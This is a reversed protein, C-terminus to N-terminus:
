RRLDALGVPRGPLWTAVSPAAPPVVAVPCGVHRALTIAPSPAVGNLLAGRAPRGLVLLRAHAATAALLEACRDNVVRQETDVDPYALRAASLQLRLDDRVHEDAADWREMRGPLLAGLDVLPDNWTRVALLGAHRRQAEAFAFDIVKPETEPGVGVVVPVPDRAHRLLQASSRPSPAQASPVIVVPCWASMVLEDVHQAPGAVVLLDADASAVLATHLVSGGLCNATVVVDAAAHRAASVARAFAARSARDRRHDDPLLVHVHARRRAAERAAWRVAAGSPVEPDLVVAIIPPGSEETPATTM